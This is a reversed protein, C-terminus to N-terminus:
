YGAAGNFYSSSLACDAHNCRVATGTVATAAGNVIFSNNNVSALHTVDTVFLRYNWYGDELKGSPVILQLVKNWGYSGTPGNARVEFGQSNNVPWITANLVMPDFVGASNVTGYSRFGFLSLLTNKFDPLSYSYWGYNMYGPVSRIILKVESSTSGAESYVVLDHAGGQWIGCAAYGGSFGGVQTQRDCVGMFDRLITTLGSSVQFRNRPDPAYPTVFNPSQSYFGMVTNSPIPYTCTSGNCTQVYGGGAVGGGDDGGSKGCAALFATGVFVVFIAALNLLEKKSGM